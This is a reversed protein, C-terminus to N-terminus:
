RFIKGFRRGKRLKTLTREVLVRRRLQELETYYWFSYFLEDPFREPRLDLNVNVMHQSAASISNSYNNSLSNRVNLTSLSKQCREGSLYVPATSVELLNSVLWNAPPSHTSFIMCTAIELILLCESRSLRCPARFAELINQLKYSDM